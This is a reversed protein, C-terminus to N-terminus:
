DEKHGAAASIQVFAMRLSSVAETLMKSEEKELNGKTKEELVALMDINFKAMALDLMPEEQNEQTTILGLSFMAQTALMNVLSLFNGEPLQQPQNKEEELEKALKEKEKKAEQKWDNDVIIKKDEAM